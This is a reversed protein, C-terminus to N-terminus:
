IPFPASSLFFSLFLLFHGVMLPSGTPPKDKYANFNGASTIERLFLKYDGDVLLKGDREALRMEAAFVVQTDNGATEEAGANPSRVKSPCLITVYLVLPRTNPAAPLELEVVVPM